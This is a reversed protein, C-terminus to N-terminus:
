QKAGYDFSTTNIDLQATLTSVLPDVAAWIAAAKQNMIPNNLVPITNTVVLPMYPAYVIPSEFIGAGKYLGIMTNDSFINKKANTTTFDYAYPVRVVTVGNYTGYIHPGFSNDDFL